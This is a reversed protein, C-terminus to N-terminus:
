RNDVRCLSSSLDALLLQHFLAIASQNEGESQIEVERSMQLFAMSLLKVTKAIDRSDQPSLKATPQSLTLDLVAAACGSSDRLPSALHHRCYAEASVPESDDVCQFLYERCPCMM